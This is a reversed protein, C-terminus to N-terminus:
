SDSLCGDAQSPKLTTSDSYSPGSVRGSERNFFELCIEMELSRPVFSVSIALFVQAYSLHHRKTFCPQKASFFKLDDQSTGLSRRPTCFTWWRNSELSNYTSYTTLGITELFSNIQPFCFNKRLHLFPVHWKTYHVELSSMAPIM